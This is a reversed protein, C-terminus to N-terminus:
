GKRFELKASGFVVQDRDKLKYLQDRGLRGRGTIYTGNLSGLDRIFYDAGHKIIEAHRRSVRDAFGKLKGLDIDPNEGGLSRGVITRSQVLGFRPVSGSAVLWAGANIQVDSVIPSAGNHGAKNGTVTWTGSSIGSSVFPRGSPTAIKSSAAGTGSSVNTSSARANKSISESKSPAAVPAAQAVAKAKGSLDQTKATSSVEIPKAFLSQQAPIKAAARQAIARASRALSKVRAVGAATGSALMPPAAMPSASAPAAARPESRGLVVTPMNTLSPKASAGSASPTAGLRRANAAPQIGVGPSGASQARDLVVTRMSAIPAANGAGSGLAGAAKPEPGPDPLAHMMDRASPPRREVDKDLARMVIEATKISVETSLDRLPPFSFPPELQPDRGSLLHHMAAALSYLDSRPEVKGMYQEPPAYGVSGIQTGRGGPPLFRAIGFDILMARGDKDIMINGPKLDRYIIPPAQSHLFSLVDLIQRAWRLVRAEPLKGKPGLRDLMGQLDGGAVFEMVLYHRNNEAFYDIVNPIGPHSLSALVRAERAFDEIAKKEAIGDGIIMEKAAVPRNALRTDNALYVRGMGGQGLVKHVRYRGDLMQGAPLQEGPNM